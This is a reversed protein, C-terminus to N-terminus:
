RSAPGPPLRGLAGLALGFGLIPSAGYGILPFPFPGLVAMAGLGALLAALATAERRLAEPLALALWATAGFLLLGLAIAGALSRGAVHALVGETYLQPALAGADFTLAALLGAGAGVALFALSRSLAALVASALALATLSAADPQLALAGGALALLAPGWRTERAALVVILPLLLAGSHLLVPGARLWRTVGGLDPGSLLPVFLLMAASAAFGLRAGHGPPLRGWAAWLLAAVLAGANVAILRAPAGFATLYALGGLVPLALPLALRWRDAIRPGV